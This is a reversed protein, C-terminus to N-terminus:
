SGPGPRLPGSRLLGGARRIALAQRYADLHAVAIGPWDRGALRPRDTRKRRVGDVADLLDRATLEGTYVHVWGPGTEEALLQNVENDPVLVPRDLSLAALAGGSNHMFRYPLVVLESATVLEVLEADDLYRTIAEIRHDAAVARDIIMGLDETSPRGGIRLTLTPASDATETFTELLREVGKYRRILGVYGLRGPEAPRRPHDAFWDRYHGHPIIMSPRGAPVPTLPNLRIRITTLRDMLDLLAHDVRSLGEPRALNHVTRVVPTRNLALKIMFALALLQRALKKAPSSGRLLTEPWHVHFVDYRGLLATRYSFTLVRGRGSRGLHDALMILYPNTTPRPTPFSQLVTVPRAVNQM